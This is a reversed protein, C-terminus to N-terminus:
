LTQLNFINDDVILVEESAKEEEENEEQKNKNSNSQKNITIQNTEEPQSSISSKRMSIRREIIKFTDNKSSGLTMTRPITAQRRISSRILEQSQKGEEYGRNNSKFKYQSISSGRKSPPM